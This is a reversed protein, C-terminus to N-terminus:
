NNTMAKQINVIKNICYDNQHNDFKLQHNNFAKRWQFRM